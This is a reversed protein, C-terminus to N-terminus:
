NEKSLRRKPTRNRLIEALSIMLSAAVPQQLGDGGNAFKV